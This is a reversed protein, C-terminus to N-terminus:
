RSPFGLGDGGDRDLVLLLQPAVFRVWDTDVIGSPSELVFQPLSCVLRSFLKTEQRLLHLVELAPCGPYCEKDSADM